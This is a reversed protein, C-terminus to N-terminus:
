RENAELPFIARGLDIELKFAQLGDARELKTARVVGHLGSSFLRESPTDPGGAGAVHRLADGPRGPLQTDLADDDHGVSRRDGLDVRDLAEAALDLQHRDLVPETAKASAMACAHGTDKDM